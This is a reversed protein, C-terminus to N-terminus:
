LKSLDAALKLDEPSTIKINFRLGQIMEVKGGYAEVVSADDTFKTDYPRSYAAKLLESRFVQPTQVLRINDRNLMFSGSPGTERVTEVPAVAPIVSGCEEAKQFLAAIFESNIFPRVGDHVAVLVGDPVYELANKVSHFRTFGGSPLSYRELFGESTCYDKWWQKMEDAMAIVIGIKPDYELFREITYRLIPKGGIELFQKPTTSGMRRGSGGATIVVYKKKEM